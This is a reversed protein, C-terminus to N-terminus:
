VDLQADLAYKEIFKRRPEVVEGMLLTFLQDAKVADNITVRKLTRKEPDMTTEWLQQPDMEGLGKYRQIELGGEGITKVGELIDHLTMYRQEKGNNRLIFRGAELPDDPILFHGAKFGLQVVESIAKEFDEAFLYETYLLTTETIDASSVTVDEEIINDIRGEAGEEKAEGSKIFENLETDNIFYYNVGNLQGKYKPFTTYRDRLEMGDTFTLGRRNLVRILQDVKKVLQLVGLFREKEIHVSGGNDQYELSTGDIGLQTLTNNMEDDSLVYQISRGRKVQYLPPCAVYLHGDEILKPMHRFFFTLLLTRIHSGDVDADCMIIIKGYRLKEIDFEEIGIGTGLATIIASVESHGLMKDVRAKEVNLIKGKLPLIAQTRSDRGMKASGGASDGEVLYVETSERDKSICDALKGPLGGGSLVSKRRAQDRAKRAATRAIAAEVAKTIIKRATAPNEELYSSLETNVIRQVFGEVERNGLKDKTQGEFQPEPVRVSVIASLGERVDDGTIAPDKEKILKNNKGWNNITRTLAARFGSLHTGGGPNNINNTFALCTENYTKNYQFAIEAEYNNEDESKGEIYVVDDHSTEKNENLYEVYSRLGGEYQYVIKSDAEADPRIDDLEIRIGKNLFALERLRNNIIDYKFETTETFIEADPMFTIKTGRMKTTGREEVETVVGGRSFRQFWIKGDRYVEAELWESLANVCSVGVGHLGGSVKYSNHDFKGGAHLVTLALTLANMNNDKNWGVPIGRGDDLITVSGGANIHVVVGKAYGAMAEDISNDVVEWILHHLGRPGTDGIYMGPRKRVAELGKLAKISDAGYEAPDKKEDASM